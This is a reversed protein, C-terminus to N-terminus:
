RIFPLYAPVVESWATFEAGFHERLLSDEIRVRIELGILFLVLAVPWGPLTGAWFIGTVLMGLMSAYIPHRVLRYPGSRVLEHDANLGADIRWQRGLARVGQWALLIAPIAVMLGVVCRWPALPKNWEAPKHLFVLFFGMSQFVIGWRAAPKIQVAKEPKSPRFLFFALLWIAWAGFMLIPRFAANM